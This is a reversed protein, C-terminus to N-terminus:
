YLQNSQNVTMELYDTANPKTKTRNNLVSLNLVLLAAISAAVMWITKTSVTEPVNIRQQIKFFLDDAPSVKTIGNASNAIKEIWKEKEMDM